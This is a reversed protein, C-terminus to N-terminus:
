LVIRCELRYFGTRVLDLIKKPFKPDPDPYPAASSRQCWLKLLWIFFNYLDIKRPECYPQCLCFSLFRNPYVFSTNWTYLRVPASVDVELERTLLKAEHGSISAVSIIKAFTKLSQWSDLWLRPNRELSHIKLDMPGLRHTEKPPPPPPPPHINVKKVKMWIKSTARKKTLKKSINQHFLNLVVLFGYFFGYLGLSKLYRLFFIRLCFTELSKGFTQSKWFFVM